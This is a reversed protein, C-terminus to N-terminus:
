GVPAHKRFPLVLDDGLDGGAGAAGQADVSMVIGAAGHGVGHGGDGRSRLVYLTADVAVAFASAVGVDEGYHGIEFELAVYTSETAGTQPLDGPDGMGDALDGIDGREGPLGVDPGAGECMLGPQVGAGDADVRVQVLVHGRAPHAVVHAHEDGVHGPPGTDFQLPAFQAEVQGVLRLEQTPDGGSDLVGFRVPVGEVGGIGGEVQQQAFLDLPAPRAVEAGLGPPGDQFVHGAVTRRNGTTHGDVGLRGHCLD